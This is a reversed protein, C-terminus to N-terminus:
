KIIHKYLTSINKTKKLAIGGIRPRPLLNKKFKWVLKFNKDILTYHYSGTAFRSNKLNIKSWRPIKNIIIRM